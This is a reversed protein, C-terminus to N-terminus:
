KLLFCDAVFILCRWGDEISSLWIEPAPEGIVFCVFFSVPETAESSTQSLKACKFKKIDLSCHKYFGKILRYDSFVIAAMKSLFELCKVDTVNERHEVMCSVLSGDEPKVNKCEM